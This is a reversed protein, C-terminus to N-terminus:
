HRIESSKGQKLRPKAIRLEISRCGNVIGPIVSGEEPARPRQKQNRNEATRKDNSARDKSYQRKRQQDGKNM